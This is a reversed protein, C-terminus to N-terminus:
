LTLNDCFEMLKVFQYDTEPKIIQIRNKRAFTRIEKKHEPFERIINSRRQVKRIEGNIRIFYRPAEEYVSSGSGNITVIKIRKALLELNEGRYMVEFFGEGLGGIDEDFFEFVAGSLTFSSVHNKILELPESTFRIDLTNKTILIDKNIDYILPVQSFEQNRYKLNGDVWSIVKFYPHSVSAKRETKHLGGTQLVTNKKGVQNDYWTQVDGEVDLDATSVREQAQAACGSILMIIGISLKLLLNKM